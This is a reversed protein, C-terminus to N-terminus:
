RRERHNALVSFARANRQDVDQEGYQLLLDPLEEDGSAHMQHSTRPRLHRTRGTTMTGARGYRGNNVLPHQSHYGFSQLLPEQPPHSQTPLYGACAYGSYMNSDVCEYIHEAGDFAYASPTAKRVAFFRGNPQSHQRLTPQQLHNHQHDRSLSAAYGVSRLQRFRAIDM